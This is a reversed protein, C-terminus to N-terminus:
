EGNLGFTGNLRCLITFDVSGSTGTITVAGASGMVRTLALAFGAEKNDGNGYSM